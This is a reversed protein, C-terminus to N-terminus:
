VMHRQGHREWAGSGAAGGGGCVREGGVGRVGGDGVGGGGVRDSGVGRLQRGTPHLSRDLGAQREATTGKGLPQNLVLQATEAPKLRRHQRIAIRLGQMLQPDAQPAQARNQNLEARGQLQGPLRRRLADGDHGTAGAEATIEINQPHAQVLLQQGPNRGLLLAAESPHDLPQAAIPGLRELRQHLGQM